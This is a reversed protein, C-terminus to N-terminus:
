ARWNLFAMSNYIKGRGWNDTSEDRSAMRTAVQIM